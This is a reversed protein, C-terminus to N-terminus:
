RVRPDEEPWKLALPHRARTPWNSVLPLSPNVRGLCAWNPGAMPPPDGFACLCSLGVGGNSGPPVL